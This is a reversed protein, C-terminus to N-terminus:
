VYKKFVSIADKLVSPIFDLEQGTQEEFRIGAKAVQPLNVGYSMVEKRALVKKALDDFVIKKNDILIVRDAYESILDIKHEVLIITKNKEKLLRIIEFVKETSQPDLQSTPEDIILINPDMVLVSALAVRQRQGGSLEVPHKDRLDDMKLDKLIKDTREIIEERAMGLNELGYAVEHFVSNKVGSVQIFPNQFVFGVEVAIEGMSMENIDKENILVNGKFKGKHFSPIFGRLINCLTTKGCGNRGVIAVFEGKNVSFSINELVNEKAIPYKYTVNVVELAKM